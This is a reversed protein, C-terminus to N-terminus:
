QEEASWCDAGAWKFPSNTVVHNPIAAIDRNRIKGKSVNPRRVIDVVIPQHVARQNTADRLANGRSFRLRLPFPDRARRGNSPHDSSSSLKVSCEFLGVM